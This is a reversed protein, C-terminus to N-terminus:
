ALLDKPFSVLDVAGREGTLSASQADSVHLFKM